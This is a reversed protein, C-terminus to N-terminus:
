KEKYDEGPIPDDFNNLSCGHSVFIGFLVKFTKSWLLCVCYALYAALLIRCNKKRKFFTKALARGSLSASLVKFFAEITIQCDQRWQGFLYVKSKCNFANFSNKKFFFSFRGFSFFM